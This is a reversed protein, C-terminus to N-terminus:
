VEVDQEDDSRNATAHKGATDLSGSRRVIVHECTNRTIAAGRPCAVDYESKVLVPYVPTARVCCRQRPAICAIQMSATLHALCPSWRSRRLLSRRQEEAYNRRSAGRAYERISSPSTQLGQTPTPAYPMLRTWLAAQAEVASKRQLCHAAHSLVACLVAFCVQYVLFGM